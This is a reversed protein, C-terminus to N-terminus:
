GLSSSGSLWPPLCNSPVNELSQHPREEHYHALYEQCVHDMHQEGFIVFRDLCEQGISQIFREVFANINPARYAGQKNRVRFRRLAAVFGKPFKKDHDHQVYRVPLASDRAQKVFSEAQAVVWEENPHLTAPSLIVQRTKVNLFAIVFAERIGKLTLIRKSFFDCQWLSAAHQKLFEDWTGEGRKPGPDLGADKLIRKVINRSISRVGLKKLEGLIRTYGRRLRM